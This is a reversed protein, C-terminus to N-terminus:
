AKQLPLVFTGDVDRDLCQTAGVYLEYFKPINSDILNLPLHRGIQAKRDILHAQHEVVFHQFVPFQETRIPDLLIRGDKGISKVKLAIPNNQTITEALEQLINEDIDM